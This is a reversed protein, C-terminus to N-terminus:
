MYDKLDDLPDNFDDPIRFNKNQSLGFQLLSGPQRQTNAKTVFQNEQALGLRFYHILDYIEALKHEPIKKLEAIIQQELM